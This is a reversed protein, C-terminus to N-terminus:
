TCVTIGTGCEPDTAVIFNKFVLGRKKEKAQTIRAKATLEGEALARPTRSLGLEPSGLLPEKGTM